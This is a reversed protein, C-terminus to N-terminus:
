RRKKKAQQKDDPGGPLTGIGAEISLDGSGPPVAIGEEVFSFAAQQGTPPIAVSVPRVRRAVVAEGRKVLLTVPATFTGAAGAPGLLARGAVGVRAVINGAPTLTCESAMDAISIQHRLAGSDGAAGAYVRVAAAGNIVEVRCDVSNDETTKTSVIATPPASQFMRKFPSALDDLFDAKAAGTGAVAAWLALAAAAKLPAAAKSSARMSRTRM